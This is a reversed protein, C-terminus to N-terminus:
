NFFPFSVLILYYYGFHGVYHSVLVNLVTECGIIPWGKLLGLGKILM